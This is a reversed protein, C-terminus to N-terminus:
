AGPSPRAGAQRLAAIRDTYDGGFVWGASILIDAGPVFGATQPKLGGDVAITPPSKLSQCQEKLIKLKKAPAKLFKQGARGPQVTMLLIIDLKGIFPFLREVPTEPNLALGAKLGLAKIERLLKEPRALAELHFSLSDAGARAFPKALAEPRSVMLHVDFPLRSLPRLAKLVCPGFTLDPVFHSDMVDWHLGDAGARELAKLEDRLRSFDASLLSPFILPKKM